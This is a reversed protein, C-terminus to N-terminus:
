AQGAPINSNCSRSHSPLPVVNGFVNNTDASRDGKSGRSLFCDNHSQPRPQILHIIIKCDETCKFCRRSNEMLETRCNPTTGDFCAQLRITKTWIARRACPSWIPHKLAASATRLSEECLSTFTIVGLLWSYGLRQSFNVPTPEILSLTLFRCLSLTSERCEAQDMIQPTAVCRQVAEPSVRIGKYEPM